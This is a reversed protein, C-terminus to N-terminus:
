ALAAALQWILRIAAVSAVLAAGLVLILIADVFRRGFPSLTGLVGKDGDTASSELVPSVAIGEM